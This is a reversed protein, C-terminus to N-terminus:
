YELKLTLTKTASMQTENDMAYVILRYFGLPANASFFLSIKLNLALGDDLLFSNIQTINEDSLILKQYSDFLKIEYSINQAKRTSAPLDEFPIKLSASRNRKFSYTSVGQNMPSDFYLPQGFRFPQNQLTPAQFSQPSRHTSKEEQTSKNNDASRLAYGLIIALIIFIGILLFREQMKATPQTTTVSSKAPSVQKRRQNHTSHILSPTQKAQSKNTRTSQSPTKLQSRNIKLTPDDDSHKSHILLPNVEIETVDDDIINNKDTM